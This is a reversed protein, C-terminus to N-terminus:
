DRVVAQTAPDADGRPAQGTGPNDNGWNKYVVSAPLQSKLVRGADKEGTLASGIDLASGATPGAFSRGVVTDRELDAAIGHQFDWFPGLLGTKMVSHQAYDVGDWQNRQPNGDPGHQILERLLEAMLTVPLYILAANLVAYNGERLEHIARRSIQEYISYSFSKYQTILKVFPDKHWTPTQMVNPRLIAEDVWKVIADKVRADAELQDKNAHAKQAESLLLAMPRGDLPGGKVEGIRVDDPKLGLEEFMRRAAEKEKATGTRAKKQHYVLFAHAAQVAMLRTQRTWGEMLNYRFVATNVKRAFPTRSGTGFNAHLSAAASMDAAYGVAEAAAILAEQTNKNLLGKIGDKMALISDTLNGGSRVVLGAPDVLSSLIALPLLRLNQWAGINDMTRLTGRNHMKVALSKSIMGINPSGLEGNPGMVPFKYRNFASNYVREMADLLEDDAGEARAKNHLERFKGEPLLRAEVAKTVLPEVYRVGHEELSPELTSVLVDLDKFDKSSKALSFVEEFVRPSDFKFRKGMQNDLLLDTPDFFANEVMRDIFNEQEKASLTMFHIQTAGPKRPPNTKVYLDDFLKEYKYGSQGVGTKQMFMRKLNAKHLAANGGIDFLLPTYNAKANKWIGEKKGYAFMDAYVKRINYFAQKEKDTLGAKPRPDPLAYYLERLVKARQTEDLDKAADALTKIWKNTEHAIAPLIGQNAKATKTDVQMRLLSRPMILDALQIASPIGSDEMRDYDNYIFNSFMQRARRTAVELTEGLKAVMGSPKTLKLEPQYPLKDRATQLLEGNAMDQVIQMALDTHVPLGLARRGLTLFNHLKQSNPDLVLEGNKYAQLLYYISADYRERGTSNMLSWANKMSPSKSEKWVDAFMGQALDYLARRQDPSLYKDTFWALDDRQWLHLAYDKASSDNNVSKEALARTAATGTTGGPITPANGASTKGTKPNGNNEMVIYDYRDGGDPKRNVSSQTANSLNVENIAYRDWRYMEANLENNGRIYEDQTLGANVAKEMEYISQMALHTLFKPDSEMAKIVNALLASNKFAKYIATKIHAIVKDLLSEYVKNGKLIYESVGYAIAEDARQSHGQQAAYHVRYFAGVKWNKDEFAAKYDNGGGWQDAAAAVTDFVKNSLEFFAKNGLMRPLFGHVAEHAMIAVAQNPDLYALSDTVFYLGKDISFAPVDVLADGTMQSLEARTGFNVLGAKELTSILRKGFMKSLVVRPHLQPVGMFTGSSQMANIQTQKGNVIGLESKLKANLYAWTKPANEKLAALGTGIGDAPFVIEDFRGSAMARQIAAIDGDIATKNALFADDSMFIYPTKKTAIGYANAMRRIVAQGATGFRATNDGFIFLSRPSAQVSEPTYRKVKSVKYKGKVPKAPAPAAKTPAPKSVTEAPAKKQGQTWVGPATEVYGHRSLHAAVEREGVNYPRARNAADDTVITAGADMARTIEAFPAPKRGGRNGEASVFVTDDATYQGSNAPVGQEIAALRYKNTSSTPSGFGIFKTAKDAKKQDKATYQGTSPLVFKGTAKVPAPAPAPKAPAADPKVQAAPAPKAAKGAWEWVQAATPNKGPNAKLYAQVLEKPPLGGTNEVAPKVAETADLWEWVKRITVKEGPHAAAYAKVVEKDPTGRDLKDAAKHGPDKKSAEQAELKAVVEASPTGKPDVTVKSDPAANTRLNRATSQVDAQTPPTIKGDTKSAVSSAKRPPKVKSVGETPVGSVEVPPKATRAREANLLDEERLSMRWQRKQLLKADHVMEQGQKKYRKSNRAGNKLDTTLANWIIATTGDEATVRRGLIPVPRSKAVNALENASPQATAPDADIAALAAEREHRTLLANAQEIRQARLEAQAKAAQKARAKRRFAQQKPTLEDEVESDEPLVEEEEEVRENRFTANSEEFIRMKADYDGEAAKKFTKDLTERDANKIKSVAINYQRESADSNNALFKDVMLQMTFADADMQTYIKSLMLFLNPRQAFQPPLGSNNNGYEDKIPQMGKAITPAKEAFEAGNMSATPITSEVSDYFDYNVGNREIRMAEPVGLAAFEFVYTQFPKDREVRAKLVSAKKSTNLNAPTTNQVVGTQSSPNELSLMASVIGNEGVFRPGVTDNFAIREGFQDDGQEVDPMELPDDNPMRPYSKGPGYKNLRWKIYSKLSENSDPMRIEMGKFKLKKGWPVKSLDLDLEPMALVSAMASTLQESNGDGTDDDTQRLRSFLMGIDLAATGSRNPIYLSKAGAKNAVRANYPNPNKPNRGFMMNPISLIEEAAATEAKAIAADKAAEALAVFEPAKLTNEIGDLAKAREADPLENAATIQDQLNALSSQLEAGNEANALVEFVAEQTDEGFLVRSTTMDSDSFVSRIANARQLATNENKIATATTFTRGVQFDSEEDAELGTEDVNIADPNQQTFESNNIGADEDEAAQLRADAAAIANANLTPRASAFGILADIRTSDPLVERMSEIETLDADTITDSNLGNRMAKALAQMGPVYMALAPNVISRKDATEITRPIGELAYGALLSVFTDDSFNRMTNDINFLSPKGSMYDSVLKQAENYTQDFSNIRQQSDMISGTGGINIANIAQPNLTRGSAQAKAAANNTSATPNGPDIPTLAAKKKSSWAEFKKLGDIFADRTKVGATSAVEGSFGLTGGILGGAIFNMGYDALADDSLLKINNDVWKQSARTIYAQAAEQAGEKAFGKGTEKLLRKAFKDAAMAEKVGKASFRNMFGLMPIFDTSAALTSGGLLKWTDQPSLTDVNDTLFQGQEQLQGPLSGVTAGAAFGATAATKPGKVRAAVNAARQAVGADFQATAQERVARNAETRATRDPLERYAATKGFDKVAKKRMAEEATKAAPDALIRRKTQNEVASEAVNKVVHRGAFGAGLGLAMDPLMKAVQYGLVSAGSGIDKIDSLEQAAPGKARALEENANWDMLRKQADQNDGVLLNGVGMVLDPTGLSRQIVSDATQQFWNRTDAVNDELKDYVPGGANRLRISDPVFSSDQYRFRKVASDLEKSM